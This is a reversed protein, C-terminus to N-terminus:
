GLQACVQAPTYGEYTLATISSYNTLWFSVAEAAWAQGYTGALHNIDLLVQQTNLNHHQANAVVQECLHSDANATPTTLALAGLTLVATSAAAAFKKRSSM